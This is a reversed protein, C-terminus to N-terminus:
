VCIADTFTSGLLPGDVNLRTRPRIISWRWGDRDGSAQLPRSISVNM